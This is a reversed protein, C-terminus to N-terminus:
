NAIFSIGARELRPKLAMGIATAPTLVGGATEPLDDDFALALASEALCKITIRNGPDGVGELRGRLKAGDTATAILDCSFFGGDMAKESPGSGPEPAVREFVGALRPVKTLVGTVAQVTALSGTELWGLLGGSQWYEQYAFEPGYGSGELQRLAHSRRVVRTNIAGMFFPATWAGFESDWSPLVPDRHPAVREPRTGAPNLLFPDELQKTLGDRQIAVLSAVTGGNVGGKGRHFARVSTCAQSTEQRLREVMWLTGLDSPVSDYGCFPVVRAGNGSATDHFRDIVSRIWPTEGTIDAYHVGAEACARVLEDGYKAFPGATTMVVRAQAVLAEIAAGDKGDAVILGDAATESAIKELREKSRGAVAFRFSRRDPHEALYHAAQRGTFGTAGQLVIDFNKRLAPSNTM